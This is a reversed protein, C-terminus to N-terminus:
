FSDGVNKNADICKKIKLIAKEISKDDFSNKQLFSKIAGFDDSKIFTIKNGDYLFFNDRHTHVGGTWYQYVGVKNKKSFLIPCYAYFANTHTISDQYSAIQKAISDRGYVNRCNCLIADGHSIISICKRSCSIFISFSIFLFILKLFLKKM